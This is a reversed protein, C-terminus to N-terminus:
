ELYRSSLVYDARQLEPYQGNYVDNLGDMLKGVHDLTWETKEKKGLYGKKALQPFSSGNEYLSDVYVFLPLKTLLSPMPINSKTMLENNHKLAAMGIKMEVVEITEHSASEVKLRKLEAHYSELPSTGQEPHTKVLWLSNLTVDALINDVANITGTTVTGPMPAKTFYINIEDLTSEKEDNFLM